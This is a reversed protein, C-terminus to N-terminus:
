VRRSAGPVEVGIAAHHGRRLTKGARRAARCVISDRDGPANDPLSAGGWFLATRGCGSSSTGNM